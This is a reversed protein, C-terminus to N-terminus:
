SVAMARLRRRAGRDPPPDLVARGRRRGSFPKVIYLPEAAANVQMPMAKAGAELRELADALANPARSIRAGTADAAYERQRSIALQIIAAAIPALMVMALAGVLGLPSDDDGGVFLLMYAIWTIAGGITAAVSQTLTDRNRIHALEHAIVGRLESESLLQTIGETVAVAAHKPSRGTAFANPQSAPIMYLRPMPLGASHALERVIQHLRPAEEEPAAEGPEDQARDQGLVLLIGMNIVAGIVLFTLAASPGGILQASCRGAPRDAHCAPDDDPHRGELNTTTIPDNGIWLTNPCGHGQPCRRGSPTDDISAGAPIPRGGWKAGTPVRGGLRRDLGSRVLRHSSGGEEALDEGEVQQQDRGRDEQGADRGTEVQVNESWRLWNRTRASAIMSVRTTLM